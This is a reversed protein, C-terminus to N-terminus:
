ARIAFSDNKTMPAPAQPVASLIRKAFFPSSTEKVELSLSFRESILFVFCFLFYRGPMLMGSDMFILSSIRGQRAFLEETRNHTFLVPNLFIAASKFLWMRGSCFNIQAVLPRSGSVPPVNESVILCSIGNRLLVAMIEPGVKASSTAFPLGVAM